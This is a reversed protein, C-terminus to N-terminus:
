GVDFYSKPDALPKQLFGCSTLICLIVLQLLGLGLHLAVGIAPYKIV